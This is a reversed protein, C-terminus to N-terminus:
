EFRMLRLAAARHAELAYGLDLGILRGEAVVDRGEVMLREVRGPGALALAAPDWSGAMPVSFADWFALDARM